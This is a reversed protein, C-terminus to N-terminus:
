RAQGPGDQLDALVADLVWLETSHFFFGLCSWIWWGSVVPRVTLSAAERCSVKWEEDGVDKKLGELNDMFTKNFYPLEFDQVCVVPAWNCPSLALEVTYPMAPAIALM